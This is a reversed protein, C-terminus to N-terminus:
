EATFGIKVTKGGRKVVIESEDGFQIKGLLEMAEKMSKPKNGNINELVDGPKIGVTEALGKPLVKEAIVGGNKDALGIGMTPKLRGRVSLYRLVAKSGGLKGIEPMFTDSANLPIKFRFEKPEKLSVTEDKVLQELEAKGSADRRAHWVCEILATTNFDDKSRVNLFPFETGTRRNRVNCGFPFGGSPEAFDFEYEITLPLLAIKSYNFHAVKNEVGKVTNPRFVVEKKSKDFEVNEAGGMMAKDVSEQTNLDHQFEVTGDDHRIMSEKAAERKELPRSVILTSDGTEAITWVVRCGTKKFASSESKGLAPTPDDGDGTVEIKTVVELGTEYSVSAKQGSKVADLPTEKGGVLIKATKSVELEIDKSKTKSTKTVTISREKADITKVTVDITVVEAFAISAMITMVMVFSAISVIQRRM